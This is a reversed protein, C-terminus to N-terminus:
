TERDDSGSRRRSFLVSIGQLVAGVLIGNAVLAIEMRLVGCNMACGILFPWSPFTLLLYDDRIAFGLYGLIVIYIPTTVSWVPYRTFFAKIM